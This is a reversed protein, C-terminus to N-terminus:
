LDRRTEVKAADIEIGLGPLDPMLIAGGQPALAHVHFHQATPQHRVLYEAMPFTAPAQSAIVNAAAYTSHGHPIVHRGYASALTGIKVLETIGGCWDPDAQLVDVGGTQLLQLFGWRTYEHEGTAIPVRGSGRMQAFEAIRDAPVAEELWRPRFPELREIMRLAYALDWGMWCDFMIDVEPGAAERVARAMAVNREMGPLGDNPGYRFFWKQARYGQDIVERVRAAIRAPEHSSGLMSAYCPVAPRTPGGLLRWVPAGALKGRLDWLACDVASIAMMLYGKRAHRDSRYMVDWLYEGARPDQGVVLPALKSRILPVIEPFVPGFLGYAGGAEEVQVYTAELRHRAGAAPRVAFHPYIDLMGVQREEQAGIEVPGEVAFCRVASIRM